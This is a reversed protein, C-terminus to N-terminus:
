TLAIVKDAVLTITDNKDVTLLILNKEAKFILFLGLRM